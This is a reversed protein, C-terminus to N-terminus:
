KERRWKIEQSSDLKKHYNVYFITLPKNPKHSIEIEKNDIVMFHKGKNIFETEFFSNHFTLQVGFYIDDKTIINPTCNFNKQITLQISEISHFKKELGVISIIKNLFSQNKKYSVQGEYNEQVLNKYYKKPITKIKEYNTELNQNSVEKFSIADSTICKDNIKEDLFSSVKSFFINSAGIFSENLDDKTFSISLKKLNEANKFSKLLNIIDDAKSSKELNKISIAVDKSHGEFLKINSKFLNTLQKNISQKEMTTDKLDNLKNLFFKKIEEFYGNILEKKFDSYNYNVLFDDLDRYEEKKTKLFNNYNISNDKYKATNCCSKCIFTVSQDDLFLYKEDIPNSCESCKEISKLSLAHILEIVEYNPKIENIKKKIEM